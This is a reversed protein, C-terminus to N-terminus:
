KGIPLNLRSSEDSGSTQHGPDSLLDRAYANSIHSYDLHDLDTQAILFSRSSLTILPHPLAPIFAGSRLRHRLVPPFRSRRHTAPLTALIPLKLFPAPDQLDPLLIELYRLMRTLIWCGMANSSRTWM